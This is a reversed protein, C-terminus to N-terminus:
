KLLYEEMFKVVSYFYYDANPKRAFGHGENDAMLYWVPTNGKKVKDVIQEAEFLPVRPDNKGQVVLLPKTIKEANNLPSIRELFERMKPDREDGYEVRRLDRRYSETRELFSLFNSIGVVDIAGAIRDAYHTSVALSMYGGYSGGMVVVRKPDLDPQAGIWDFLAGVDKVSDERLFGNDLKLFTKGYGTSGRVNPQILTIGLENVLYNYRGIFGLKSQGEPGGHILIAVPRKGPFRSSDPRTILGSITREDFSKWRIISTDSFKSTDIQAAPSTWQEVKGTKLNLSFCEGPSRASDLNFGIEEDNLWRAQYVAGVPLAPIALEKGTRTDFLHLGNLGDNNIIAALRSGRKAPEVDEVSWPINGSLPTVKKTALDLRALQRFEGGRDSSFVLQKGDNTFNVEGYYAPEGASGEDPQVQKREGTTTDILWLSTENASKYNMGVLKKDDPSWKFDGWGGGPLSVLKRRAEPKLPDLLSVETTVEKRREPGATKDLQTSTMVLMTGAHNWEGAAHKETPDTLLTAKKTDLDLRYIQTAESGGEDKEFVIYKGNKPEFRAARVPDPFDTLQELEGMPKSLLHLQVTPGASRTSILMERKLPHWDLLKRPRFDNYKAARQALDETIPPIGEVTLHSNPEVIKTATGQAFGTSCILALVGAAIATRCSPFLQRTFMHRMTHINKQYSASANYRIADPSQQRGASTKLPFPRFFAPM